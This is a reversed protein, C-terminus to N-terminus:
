FLRFVRDYYFSIKHSILLSMDPLLILMELRYTM